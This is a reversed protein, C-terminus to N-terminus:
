EALHPPTIYDLNPFFTQISALVNSVLDPKYSNM